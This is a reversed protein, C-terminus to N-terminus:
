VKSFDPRRKEMFAGFAERAAATWDKKGKMPWGKPIIWRKTERSSVLLVDVGAASFLPDINFRCHMAAKIWANAAVFPIVDTGTARLPRAPASSPTFRTMDLM